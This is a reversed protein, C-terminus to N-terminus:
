SIEMHASIGMVCPLGEPFFCNVQASSLEVCPQSRAESKTSGAYNILKLLMKWSHVRSVLHTIQTGSYKTDHLSM